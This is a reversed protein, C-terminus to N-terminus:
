GKEMRVVEAQNWTFVLNERKAEVSELITNRKDQTQRWQKSLCKKQKQGQSRHIKIRVLRKKKGNSVKPEEQKRHL